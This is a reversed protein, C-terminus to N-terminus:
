GMNMWEEMGKDGERSEKKDREQGKKRWGM